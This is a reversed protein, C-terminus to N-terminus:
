AQLSAALESERSGGLDNMAAGSEVCASGPAQTEEM